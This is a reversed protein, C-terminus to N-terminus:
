RFDGFREVIQVGQFNDVTARHPTAGKPLPIGIEGYFTRALKLEMCIPVVEGSDLRAQTFRGYIKERTFFLRGILRTDDVLERWSTLTSVEIPGEKIVVPKNRWRVLEVAHLYLEEEPRTLGFRLHTERAGPPCEEPPPPPNFKVSACGSAVCAAGALLAARAVARTKSPTKMDTDEGPSTRPEARPLVEGTLGPPAVEQRSGEERPPHPESWEPRPTLCFVGLALVLAAGGPGRKWRPAAGGPAPAPTPPPEFLPLNWSRDAHSWAESLAQALAPADPYRARPDKELLRQCVEGLAPPVRLNLVHPAPPTHNLIRQTLPGYRDGFPLERTLLWYLTVGLAWLDEPPGPSFPEGTWERAHRLVEPSRYEPTGPPLRPTLRRADAHCAAGFDVLVPQGDKHRVLVNREKVDRHVVGSGHVDALLLVLPLLVQHVLTLASPNQERAWDELTLGEVLELALVQFRPAADPWVGWGQFGVVNPHRQRRLAEMERAVRPDELALLKLAFPRGERRARYVTGSGGADLPGDIVFGAVHTGPALRRTDNM